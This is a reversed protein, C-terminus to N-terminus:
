AEVQWSAEKLLFEMVKRPMHDDVTIKERRAVEAL